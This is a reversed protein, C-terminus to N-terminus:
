YITSENENLEFYKQRLIEDEFWTNLLTNNLRWTNPSKGARERQQQNGTQNRRPRLAPM